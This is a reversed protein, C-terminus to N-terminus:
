DMFTEGAPVTRFRNHDRRNAPFAFVIRQQFGRHIEMACPHSEVEFRHRWRTTQERERDVGPISTTPPVLSSGPAFTAKCVAAASQEVHSQRARGRGPDGPEITPVHSKEFIM